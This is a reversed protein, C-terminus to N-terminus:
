GAMEYIEPVPLEADEIQVIPPVGPNEDSTGHLGRDYYDGM